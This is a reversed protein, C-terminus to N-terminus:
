TNNHIVRMCLQLCCTDTYSRALVLIRWISRHIFRAFYQFARYGITKWQLNMNRSAVYTSTRKTWVNSHTARYLTGRCVSHAFSSLKHGLRVACSREYAHGVRRVSLPSFIGLESCCQMAAHGSCQGWEGPTDPVDERLVGVAGRWM